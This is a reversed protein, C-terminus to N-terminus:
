LDSADLLPRWAAIVESIEPGTPPLQGVVARGWSVLDGALAPDASRLALTLALLVRAWVAGRTAFGYRLDPDRAESAYAFLYHAELGLRVGNAVDDPLADLCAASLLTAHATALAPAASRLSPICPAGEDDPDHVPVGTVGRAAMAEAFTVSRAPPRFADPDAGPALGRLDGLFREAALAEGRERLRVVLRLGDALVAFGHERGFGWAIEAATLASDARGAVAHLDSSRRAAQFLYRVDGPAPRGAAPGLIALCLDAAVVAVDPDGYEALVDAALQLVRALDSPRDARLYARVAADAEVVASAGRGLGRLAVARRMRVDAVLTPAAGLGTYLGLSEELVEVAEAQRGLANLSGGKGYLLAALREDRRAGSPEARLLKEAERQQELALDWRDRQQLEVAAHFLMDVRMDAM